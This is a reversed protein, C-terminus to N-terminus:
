VLRKRMWWGGILATGTLLFGLGICSSVKNSVATATGEEVKRNMGKEDISIKNVLIKVGNGGNGRSEFATEIEVFRIFADEKKGNDIADKIKSELEAVKSKEIAVLYLDKDYLSGRYQIRSNGLPESYPNEKSLDIKKMQFSDPVVVIMNPRSPHPPNPNPKVELKYSCLYFQYDPYNQNLEIRIEQAVPPPPIDGLIVNVFFLGIIVSFVFNFKNM